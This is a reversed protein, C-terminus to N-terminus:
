ALNKQPNNDVLIVKNKPKDIFLEWWQIYLTVDINTSRIWNEDYYYLKNYVHTNELDLVTEIKSNPFYKLAAENYVKELIQSYNRCVWYRYKLLIDKVEAFDVTQISEYILDGIWIVEMYNNSKTDSEMIFFRKIEAKDWRALIGKFNNLWWNFDKNETEKCATVKEILMKVQYDSFNTSASELLAKENKLKMKTDIWLEVKAEASRLLAIATILDYTMNEKIFDSIINVLVEPSRIEENKYTEKIKEEIKSIIDKKDDFNIFPMMLSIHKKDVWISALIWALKGRFSL